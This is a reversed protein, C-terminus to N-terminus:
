IAAGLDGVAGAEAEALKTGLEFLEIEGGAHGDTVVRQLGEPVLWVKHLTAFYIKCASLGVRLKGIPREFFVFVFFFFFGLLSHQAANKPEPRHKELSPQLISSSNFRDHHSWIVRSPMSARALPQLAKRASNRLPQVCTCEYELCVCVCVRARYILGYKLKTDPLCKLRESIITPAQWLLLTKKGMNHYFSRTVHMIVNQSPSLLEGHVPWKQHTNRIPLVDAFLWIWLAITLLFTIDFTFSLVTTEHNWSSSPANFCRWFCQGSSVVMLICDQVTLCINLDPHLSLLTQTGSERRATMQGTYGDWCIVSSPKTLRHLPHWLSCIRQTDPQLLMVSAERVAIPSLQGRSLHPVCAAVLVSM